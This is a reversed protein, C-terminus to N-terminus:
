LDSNEKFGYMISNCNLDSMTRRTLRKFIFRDHIVVSGKQTLIVHDPQSYNVPITLDYYLAQTDFCQPDEKEDCMDRFPYNFGEIDYIPNFQTTTTQKVLSFSTSKFDSLGFDM